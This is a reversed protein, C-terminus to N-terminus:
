NFGEINMNYLSIDGVSTTANGTVALLIAAAENATISSALGVGLNATGVSGDLFQVIQTNSGAAGYKYMQSQLVWGVNAQTVSGTDGVTTGGSIISGAVAATPNIIIKIRKTQSDNGLNGGATIEIGKGAASLSSAPLSYVALVYDNTIGAPNALPNGVQVNVNGSEALTGTGGGFYTPGLGLQSLSYTQTTAAPQSNAAVGQVTILENGVPATAM